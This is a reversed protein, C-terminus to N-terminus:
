SPLIAIFHGHIDGDLVEGFHHMYQHFYRGGVQPSSKAPNFPMYVM